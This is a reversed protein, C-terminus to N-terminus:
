DSTSDTVELRQPGQKDPWHELRSVDFWLDPNDIPTAAPLNPNDLEFTHRQALNGKEIVMKVMDNQMMISNFSGDEIALLLGQELAVALEPKKPSVFLYFPMRYLLVLNEDVTLELGPRSSLEGWPENVGRPFAHFRQGDAMLFLGEYTGTEVKLGNHRLIETDPWGRGQGFVFDKLQNFERVDAFLNRNQEHIIFVRYGLLGKYLPVRVPILRQEIDTTTASWMIDMAGDATDQQQRAGTLHGEQINLQYEAGYKDLGLQIMRIAYQANGDGRSVLNIDWAAQAPLMWTLLLLLPLYRM